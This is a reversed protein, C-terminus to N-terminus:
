PKELAQPLTIGAHEAMSAYAQSSLLLNSTVKKAQRKCCGAKRFAANEPAEFPGPIFEVPKGPVKDPPQIPVALQRPFPVLFLPIQLIPFSLTNYSQLASLLLSPLKYPSALVEGGGLLVIMCSLNDKSGCKIAQCALPIVNFSRSLQGLRMAFLLRLRHELFDSLFFSFSHSMGRYAAQAPDVPQGEVSQLKEAALKM